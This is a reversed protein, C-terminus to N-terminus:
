HRTIFSYSEPMSTMAFLIDFFDSNLNNNIPRLKPKKTNKRMHPIASIKKPVSVTLNVALNPSVGMVPKEPKSNARAIHGINLKKKAPKIQIKLM